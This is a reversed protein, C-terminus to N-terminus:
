HQRRWIAVLQPDLWGQGVDVAANTSLHVGDPRLTRDQGSTRLHGALDLVVVKGPRKSPLQRIMQDFRQTRDGVGPMPPSTLWVVLTGHSALADVTHLMQGELWTDYPETGLHCWTPCVGPIQRDYLDNPGFLVVALDTRHHAVFDRYTRLQRDCDAPVTYVRDDPQRRTGGVGVGCGLQAVGGLNAIPLPRGADYVAGESLVLGSSDGFWAVRPRGDAAGTPLPRPHQLTRTAAAFDNPAPAADVTVVLSGVIVAAATALGGLAVGTMWRARSARDTSPRARRRRVPVEVLYYSALALATTVLMRLGFDPWLALHTRAPTLWLFVPWHFVYLGYSVLGIARLPALSLARGLLGRPVVVVALVVLVSLGAYGALGGAYVWSSSLTTTAWLVVCASLAVIGVVSLVRGISRGRGPDALGGTAGAIEPWRTFLLALAAGALIEFCRTDTGYFIRDHSFGAFMTLVLSAAMALGVLTALRRTPHHGRLSWAAVLGFVLYFQGEVALSWFHQLPSPAAFLQAYSQGSAIFHWNITYTLATVMDGFLARQQDPTAVTLGFALVVVAGLLAAPVLRRLRRGFFTRRSISGTRRHEAILLTTILFGSLTFFTSVGLFGGAAWSFGGHFFLVAMVALGRLGDLGPWGPRSVGGSVAGVSPEEATLVM